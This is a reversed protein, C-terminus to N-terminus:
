SHCCEKCFGYIEFKHSDPQFGKKEIEKMDIKELPCSKLVEVRGCKKCILSHIHQEELVIQYANKGDDLSVKRVIGINIFTELNRYITSFNIDKNKKLVWEFIDSPELLYDKNEILIDLMAKRQVTLKYGKEQISEYIKYITNM